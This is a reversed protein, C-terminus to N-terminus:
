YQLNVKIRKVNIQEIYGALLQERTLYDVANIFNCQPSNNILFQSSIIQNENEKELQSM